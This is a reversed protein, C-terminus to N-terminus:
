RLNNPQQFLKTAESIDIEKWEVKLFDDLLMDSRTVQMFGLVSNLHDLYTQAVRGEIYRLTGNDLELIVRTIKPEAAQKKALEREQM